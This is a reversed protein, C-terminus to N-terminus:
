KNLLKELEQNFVSPMEHWLADCCRKMCDTDNPLSLIFEFIKPYWRAVEHTMIEDTFPLVGRSHLEKLLENTTYKKIEDVKVNDSKEIALGCREVEGEFLCSEVRPIGCHDPGDWMYDYYICKNM